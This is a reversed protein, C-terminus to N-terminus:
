LSCRSLDFAFLSDVLRSTPSTYTETSCVVPFFFLLVTDLHLIPIRYDLALLALSCTPPHRCVSLTVAYGYHLYGLRYVIPSSLPPARYCCCSCPALLWPLLLFLLLQAPQCAAPVSLVHTGATDKNKQTEQGSCGFM